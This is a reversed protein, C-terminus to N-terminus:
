AARGRMVRERHDRYEERLHALQQRLQTIEIHQKHGCHGWTVAVLRYADREAQAEALQARAESLARTLDVVLACAEAANM